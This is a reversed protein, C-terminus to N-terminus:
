RGLVRIECKLPGFKSSKYLKSYSDMESIIGRLKPSLIMKTIIKHLYTNDALSIICQIVM